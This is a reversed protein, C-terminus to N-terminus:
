PGGGAAGAAAGREVSGCDGCGLRKSASRATNAALVASFSTVAPRRSMEDEASRRISVRLPAARLRAAAESCSLNTGPADSGIDVPPSRRQARSVQSAASRRGSWPASPAAVPPPAPSVSAPPPAVEPSWALGATESASCAAAAGRAACRALASPSAAPGGAALSCAGSRLRAEDGADGARRPPAADELRLDTLLFGAAGATSSAPVAGCWPALM